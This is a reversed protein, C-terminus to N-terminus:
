WTDLELKGVVLQREERTVATSTIITISTHVINKKFVSSVGFNHFESNSGVYM